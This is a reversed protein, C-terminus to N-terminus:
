DEYVIEFIGKKAAARMVGPSVLKDDKALKINIARLDRACLESCIVRGTKSWVLWPASIGIKRLLFYPALSVLNVFDYKTGVTMQSYAGNKMIESDDVSLNPVRLVCIHDAAKILPALLSKEVGPQNAEIIYGNGVLQASHSYKGDFLEIGRSIFSKGAFLIFDSTHLEGPEFIKDSM